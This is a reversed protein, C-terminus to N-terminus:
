EKRQRSITQRVKFKFMPTAGTWENVQKNVSSVVVDVVIHLVCLWKRKGRSKGPFQKFVLLMVRPPHVNTNWDGRWRREKTEERRAHSYMFSYLSGRGRWVLWGNGKVVRGRGGGCCLRRRWLACCCASVCAAWRLGDPLNQPRGMLCSMLSSTVNLIRACM